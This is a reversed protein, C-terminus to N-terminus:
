YGLIILALDYYLKGVIRERNYQASM